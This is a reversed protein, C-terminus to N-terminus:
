KKQHSRTMIKQLSVLAKNKLELNNNAILELLVEKAGFHNLVESGSPYLKAFEGLDFCAICKKEIDAESTIPAKIIKTLLDIYMFDQYEFAKFNDEWFEESHLFGKKM